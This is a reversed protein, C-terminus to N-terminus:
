RRRVAFVHSRHDEVADRRHVHAQRQEGRAVRLAREVLQEGVALGVGRALSGERFQRGADAGQQPTELLVASRTPDHMGRVPM